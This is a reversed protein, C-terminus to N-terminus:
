FLINGKVSREVKTVPRSEKDALIALPLLPQYVLQRTLSRNLLVDLFSRHHCVTILLDVYHSDIYDDIGARLCLHSEIVENTNLDSFEAQYADRISKEPATTLTDEALITLFTLEAQHISVLEHLSKIANIGLPQYDTALVVNLLPGPQQSFPM